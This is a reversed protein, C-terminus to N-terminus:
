VRGMSALSSGLLCPASIALFSTILTTARQNGDTHSVPGTTCAATHTRAEHDKGAARPPGDDVGNPPPHVVTAVAHALPLASTGAPRGAPGPASHVFSGIGARPGNGGLLAVATSPAPPYGPLAHHAVGGHDNRMVRVFEVCLLGPVGDGPSPQGMYM